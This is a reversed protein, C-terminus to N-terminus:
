KVVIVLYKSVSWFKRPDSIRLVMQGQGDKDLTYSSAPHTTKLEANKSYLKITKTARIDIKTFYDSRVMGDRFVDGKKLINQERLEKKTGFVYYATHLDADQKAMTQAKQENDRSLTTVDSELANIKDGQAAIVIDKKALEERLAAIEKETAEMQEQLGAVQAELTQKVKANSASTTKIQQQLNAIREKNEKMTRQIYAMDEILAQKNAGEGQNREVRVRGEAEGILRLGEQVESMTNLIDDLENAQQENVGRLSDIYAQQQDDFANQKEQKTECACLCVTLLLLSLTLIKNM